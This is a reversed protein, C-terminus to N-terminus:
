EDRTPREYLHQYPLREVREPPDDPLARWWLALAGGLTAWAAIEWMSMFPIVFVSALVWLRLALSVQGKKVKM